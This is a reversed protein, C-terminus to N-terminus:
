SGPKFSSHGKLSERKVKAFLMRKKPDIELLADYRFVLNLNRVAVTVQTLHLLVNIPSNHEM